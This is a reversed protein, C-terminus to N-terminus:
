RVNSGIRILAMVGMVAILYASQTVLGILLVAMLTIALIADIAGDNM